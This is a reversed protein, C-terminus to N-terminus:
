GAARLREVLQKSLEVGRQAALKADAIQSRTRTDAGPAFRLHRDLIACLADFDNRVTEAVQAVDREVSDGFPDAGRTQKEM